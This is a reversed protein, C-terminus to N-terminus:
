HSIRVSSAVFSKLKVADCTHVSNAITSNRNSQETRVARRRYYYSSARPCHMGGGLCTKGTYRIM